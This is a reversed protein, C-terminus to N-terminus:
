KGNSWRIYARGLGMIELMQFAGQSESNWDWANLPGYLKGDQQQEAMHEMYLMKHFLELKMQETVVISM